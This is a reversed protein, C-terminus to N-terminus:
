QHLPDSTTPATSCYDDPIFTNIWTLYKSVRTYVGPVDKVACKYGYSTIGLVEWRGGVKVILPGGSDGSCTDKGDAIACLQSSLLTFTQDQFKERWAAQCNANTQVELEVEQLEKAEYGGYMVAGWGSATAIVGAMDIDTAPLCLPRISDTFTVPDPLVVLAVDNQINADDYQPHVEYKTTKYWHADDEYYSSVDLKGLGVKISKINYGSFCHAASLILTSTILSGGCRYEYTNVEIVLFAMWPYENKEAALGGVIRQVSFRTTEDTVAVDGCTICPSALNAPTEPYSTVVTCVYGGHIGGMLRRYQVVVVKGTRPKVEDNRCYTDTQDDVTVTLAELFCNFKLQLHQCTLTLHSDQNIPQFTQTCEYRYLDQRSFLLVAHGDDLHHTTNCEKVAVLKTMTVGEEEEAQKSSMQSTTNSSRHQPLPPEMVALESIMFRNRLRTGLVVKGWVPSCWCGAIVVQLLVQLFTNM